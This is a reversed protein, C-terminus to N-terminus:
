AILRPAPTGVSVSLAFVTLRPVIAIPAVPVPDTVSVEDPVAATVIFEPDTVPAPYVIEPTLKGSVRFGPWVAVSFMANVGVTPPVALPEIVSVLLEEVPVVDVMVRLAVPWGASLASLQVFPEIVPAPVSEHVTVRLAAAPVPPWATVRDLLSVDTATGADTVTAAPAVLAPKEAVTEVTLVVCVAVSVADDPPPVFVKPMLRPAPTGVSVSLAFVTLRPVIAIPAVPVPDTVSVEDPVAATVIFEPETVPAPYVIEPTLKGSVKFGPWVAVSPIVNMGVAPPAALPEIVSVLLEEVPVVDVMVRLAVPCGTSLPRLQV